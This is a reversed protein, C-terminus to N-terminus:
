RPARRNGKTRGTASRAIKSLSGTYFREGIPEHGSRILERGIEPLSVGRRRLARVRRKLAEPYETRERRYGVKWGPLHRKVTEYTWRSGRPHPVHEVMHRYIAWPRMGQGGNWLERMIALCRQEDPEEVLHGTKTVRYGLKVKGGTHLGQARKTRIVDRTRESVLERELQAIVSSIAALARGLASRLDFAEGGMTTIHLAVQLDTWTSLTSLCDLTSRFCRDLRTSVIIQARGSRVADLVQAGGRRRHLPKGGSVGPDHFVAVLDLGRAACYERIMREQTRLSLTDLGTERHSQRAYGVASRTGTDTM